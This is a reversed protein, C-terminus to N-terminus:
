EDDVCVMAEEQAFVPPPGFADLGEIVFDRVHGEKDPVGSRTFAALTALAKDLGDVDCGGEQFEKSDRNGGIHLAMGQPFRDCRIGGDSLRAEEALKARVDVDGVPAVDIHPGRGAGIVGRQEFVGEHGCMHAVGEGNVFQLRNSQGFREREGLAAAGHFDRGAPAFLGMFELMQKEIHFVVRPLFAREMRRFDFFSHDLEHGPEHHFIVRRRFLKFSQSEFSLFRHRFGRIDNEDDCILHPAIAESCCSMRNGLGRIQVVEGGTASEEGASIGGDGGAKGSARDEPGALILPMGADETHSAASGLDGAVEGIRQGAFQAFGTISGMQDSFSM